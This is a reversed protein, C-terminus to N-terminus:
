VQTLLSAQSIQKDDSTVIYRNFHLQDACDFALSILCLLVKNLLVLISVVRTNYAIDQHLLYYFDNPRPRLPRTRRPGSSSSSCPWREPASSSPWSRRVALAHALRLCHQAPVYRTAACATRRPAAPCATPWRPGASPTTPPSPRSRRSSCSRSRRRGRRARGARRPRSQAVLLRWARVCVAWGCEGDTRVSPATEVTVNARTQLLPVGKSVDEKSKEDSFQIGRHHVIIAVVLHFHSFWRFFHFHM